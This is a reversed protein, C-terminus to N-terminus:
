HNRSEELLYKTRNEEIFTLVLTEIRNLIPDSVFGVIPSKDEDEHWVPYKVIVKGARDRREKSNRNAMMEKIKKVVLDTMEIRQGESLDSRNNIHNKWILYNKRLDHVENAKFMIRMNYMRDILVMKLVDLKFREDSKEVEKVKYRAQLEESYRNYIELLEGDFLVISPIANVIDYIQSRLRNYEKALYEKAAAVKDNSFSRYRRDELEFTKVMPDFVNSFYLDMEQLTLARLSDRNGDSYEGKCFSNEDSCISVYSSDYLIKGIEGRVIKEVYYEQYLSEFNKEFQPVVNKKWWEDFNNVFDDSLNEYLLASLTNYKTKNDIRLDSYFGSRSKWEDDKSVSTVDEVNCFSSVKTNYGARIPSFDPSSLDGLFNRNDKFKEPGCILNYSLYDTLSVHDEPFYGTDVSNNEFKKYYDIFFRQGIGLPMVGYHPVYDYNTLTDKIRFYAGYSKSGFTYSSEGKKWIENDLLKNQVLHFYCENSENICNEDIFSCQQSFQQCSFSETSVANSLKQLGQVIKGTNLDEIIKDAIKVKESNTIPNGHTLSSKRSEMEHILQPIMSTKFKEFRKELSDADRSDQAREEWDAGLGNWTPYSIKSAYDDTETRYGLGFYPDSRFLPLPDKYYVWQDVPNLNFNPQKDKGEKVRQRKVKVQDAIDKYFMYTAKYGNLMKHSYETWQATAESFPTLLHSRWKDQIDNHHKIYGKVLQVGCTQDKNWDWVYNWTRKWLSGTIDYDRCLAEMNWDSNQLDEFIEVLNQRVNVPPVDTDLYEYGEELGWFVGQFLALFVAFQGVTGFFKVVPSKLIGRAVVTIRNMKTGGRAAQQAAKIGARSKLVGYTLSQAGTMTLTMITKASLLAIIGMYTQPNETVESWVKSWAKNCSAELRKVEYEPRNTEYLGYYDALSLCSELKDVALFVFQSILYGGALGRHSVARAIISKPDMTSKYAQTVRDKIKSKIHQGGLNGQGYFYNMHALSRRYVDLEGGLLRQSAAGGIFFSGISLLMALSLTQDLTREFQIPNSEFNKHTQVASLVFLLSVIIVGMLGVNLLQGKMTQKVIKSAEEEEVANASPVTLPIKKGSVPDEVLVRVGGHFHNFKAGINYNILRNPSALSARGNNFDNIARRRATSSRRKAEDITKLAKERQEPTFQDLLIRNAKLAKNRVDDENLEGLIKNLRSKLGKSTEDGNAQLAKFAMVYQKFLESRRAHVKFDNETLKFDRELVEVKARLVKELEGSQNTHDSSDLLLNLDTNQGFVINPLVLLYCLIFKLTIKFM